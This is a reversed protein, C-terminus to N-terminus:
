LEKALVMPKAGDLLFSALLHLRVVLESPDSIQHVAALIASYAVSKVKIQVM